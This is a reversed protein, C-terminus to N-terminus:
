RAEAPVARIPQGLVQDVQAWFKRFAPYEAPEIVSTRMVILSHVVVVNGHSTAHSTASINV